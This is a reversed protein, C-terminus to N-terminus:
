LPAGLLAGVERQVPELQDLKLQPDDLIWTEGSAMHEYILKLKGDVNQRDIQRILRKRELMLALIYRANCQAPDNEAILRRLLGEADEKKLTEPSQAAPVFVTQWVCLPRVNDNRDAWAQECFDKREYQGEQWYLASYFVENEAFPRQTVCCMEGRSKINWEQM